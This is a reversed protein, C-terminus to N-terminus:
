WQIKGWTNGEKPIRIITERLIPSPKVNKGKTDILKTIVIKASADIDTVNQIETDIEITSYAKFMIKLQNIRSVDMNTTQQLTNLDRNEYASRFHDLKEELNKRQIAVRRKDEELRLRNEQEKREAKKREAEKREAEKREAEKREAKKREAEKREAEKREELEIAALRKAEAEELQRKAVIVAERKQELEATLTALNDDAKQTFSAGKAQLQQQASKIADAIEQISQRQAEDIKGRSIREAETISASVNESLAQASVEQREHEARIQQRLDAVQLEVAELQQQSQVLNSSTSISQITALITDAQGLLSKTKAEQASQVEQLEGNLGELRELAATVLKQRDAEEKEKQAQAKALAEAKRQKADAIMREKEAMAATVSAMKANSERKFAAEMQGLAQHTSQIQGPLEELTRRQEAELQEEFLRDAETLAAAVRGSRIQAAAEQRTQEEGIKQRLASLLPKAAELKRESGEPDIAPALAQISALLKDTHDILSNTTELQVSQIMHLDRNLGELTSIIANVRIQREAEEKEKQTKAKALAEANRRRAEAIEGKKEELAGIVAELKAESERTFSTRGQELDHQAAQIAESIEKLTRRQEADLTGKSVRTAETLAAVVRESQAEAAAGQRRQEDRIQQRLDNARQQAAELQQQSGEPDLAPVLGQITTLLTDTQGLLSATNAQQTSQAKQLEDKLSETASIASGVQKEQEAAEREKKAKVKARAETERRKTEAIEGETDALLAKVEALKAEVNSQFSSQQEKLNQQATVVESRLAQIQERQPKELEGVIVTDPQKLAKKAKRALVEQSKKRRTKEERVEEGLTVLRKGASEIMTQSGELLGQVHIKKILGYLADIKAGLSQTTKKQREYESGYERQVQELAGLAKLVATDPKPKGPEEVRTPQKKEEQMKLTSPLTYLILLVIGIVFLSGISIFTLSRRPSSSIRQDDLKKSPPTDSVPPEPPPPTEPIGEPEGLIELSTRLSEESPPPVLITDELAPETLFSELKDQHDKLTELVLRADKLRQESKKKTLGQILYQLSEPINEPFNLDPESEDYALKGVISHGTLGQYPTKKTLMEYFVIGLSYLDSGADVREGKAQEPSMYEPTGLVTGALTTGPEDLVAAIGFDTIKIQDQEGVLINGPKIDRHVINKQHAYALAKTIELAIHLAKSLPLPGHERLIHKLDQGPFYEMVIYHTGEEKEVGYIRVINPHDLRALGRAEQLFRQDFSPDGSYRAHLAKIAVERRLAIDIAHYVMGMGGSAIERQLEYKGSIIREEM